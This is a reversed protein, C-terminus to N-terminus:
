EFIVKSFGRVPQRKNGGVVLSIKLTPGIYLVASQAIYKLIMEDYVLWVTMNAQTETPKIVHWEYGNKNFGLDVISSNDIQYPKEQACLALCGAFLLLLLWAILKKM